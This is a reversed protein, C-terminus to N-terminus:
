WSPLFANPIHTLETKDKTKLISVVDFRVEKQIAFKNMYFNAARIVNKQKQRTVFEEPQGMCNSSRTKVECFVLAEQNEAIIDIELHGFRWNKDRILYAHSQYFESAMMEGEDGLNQKETKM